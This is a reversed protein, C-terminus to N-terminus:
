TRLPGAGDALAENIQDVLGRVQDSSFNGGVLTLSIQPGGRAAPQTTNEPNAAGSVSGSAGGGGFKTNRIAQVQALGAAVTTAAAAINLPYPVDRLAQAAGQYTGVLANAIAVVKQVEFAKKSYTSAIQLAKAGTDLTKRLENNKVMALMDYGSELGQKRIDFVAAEHDRTLKEKAENYGGIMELEAESFTELMSLRMEFRSQEEELQVTELDRMSQLLDQRQSVLDKGYEAGAELAMQFDATIREAEGPALGGELQAMAYEKAAALEEAAKRAEEAAKKAAEIRAKTEEPTEVNFQPATTPLSPLAALPDAPAGGGTDAVGSMAGSRAAENRLAGFKERATDAANAIAMIARPVLGVASNKVLFGVAQVVVNGFEAVKDITKQIAEPDRTLEDIFHGVEPTADLVAKVLGKSIAEGLKGMSDGFDDAKRITADDIIGVASARLKDLGGAGQSALLGVNLGAKSFFELAFASQRAPDPIQELARITDLFVAEAKRPGSEDTLAIGLNEFAIAADGGKTAAEALKKTFQDLGNALEENTLGVQNGAFQLRQLEEVTFRTKDRLRAMGDAFDLAGKLASGAMAVGAAVAAIGLAKFQNIAANAGKEVAKEIRGMSPELSGKMSKGAIDAEKVAQRLGAQLSKLDAKIKVVFDDGSTAM